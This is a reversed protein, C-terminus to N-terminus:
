ECVELKNAQEIKFKEYADRLDNLASKWDVRCRQGKKTNEKVALCWCAVDVANLLHIIEELTFDKNGM